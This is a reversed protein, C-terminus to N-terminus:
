CLSPSLDTYVGWRVQLITYCDLLRYVQARSIKHCTSFYQEMTCHRARYMKDKVIAHVATLTRIFGEEKDGVLQKGKCSTSSLDIATELAELATLALASNPDVDISQNSDVTELTKGHILTANANRSSNLNSLTQSDFNRVLELGRNSGTAPGALSPFHLGETTTLIEAAVNSPHLNPEEHARASVLQSPSRIFPSASDEAQARAKTALTSSETATPCANCLTTGSGRDRRWKSPELCAQNGNASTCHRKSTKSTMSPSACRKESVGIVSHEAFSNEVILPIEYTKLSDICLANLHFLRIGGATLSSSGTQLNSNMAAESMAKSRTAAYQSLLPHYPFHNMMGQYCNGPPHLSTFRDMFFPNSVLSGRHALYNGLSTLPDKQPDSYPIANPDAIRDKTTGDETEQSVPVKSPERSSSSAAGEDVKVDSSHAPITCVSKTPTSELNPLAAPTTGSYNLAARMAVLNAASPVMSALRQHNVTSAIASPPPGQGRNLLTFSNFSAHSNSAAAISAAASMMLDYTPSYYPSPIFMPHYPLCQAPPPTANKSTSNKQSFSSSSNIKIDKADAEIQVHGLSKISELTIESITATNVQNFKSEGGGIENLKSTNRHSIDSNSGPSVTEFSAIDSNIESSGNQIKSKGFQERMKDQTELSHLEKNPTRTGNIGEHDESVM